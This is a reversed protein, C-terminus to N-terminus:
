STLRDRWYNPGRSMHALAVIEIFDISHRYVVFFPFHRLPLRRVPGRTRARPIIEGIDPHTAIMEIAAQIEGWLRDGLGTSENEYWHIARRIEDQAATNPRVVQM